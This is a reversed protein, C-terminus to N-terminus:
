KEAEAAKPPQGDSIWIVQAGRSPGAITAARATAIATAFLVAALLPRM